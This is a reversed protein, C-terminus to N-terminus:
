CSICTCRYKIKLVSAGNAALIHIISCTLCFLNHHHLLKVNKLNKRKIPVGDLWENTIVEVRFPMEQTLHVIPFAHAHLVLM